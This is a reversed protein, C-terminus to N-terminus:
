FAAKLLVQIPGPRNQERSRGSRLGPNATLCTVAPLFFPVAIHKRMRADNASTLRM